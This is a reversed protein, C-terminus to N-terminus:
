PERRAPDKAIIGGVGNDPTFPGAATPPGRPPPPPAPRRIHLGEERVGEESLKKKWANHIDGRSLYGVLRGRDDVVPLHGVHRWVMKQLAMYISDDPHVTIPDKTAIDLVTKGEL